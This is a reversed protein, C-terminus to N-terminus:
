YDMDNIKVHERPWDKPNKAMFADQPNGKRAKPFISDSVDIEWHSKHKEMADKRYDTNNKNIM